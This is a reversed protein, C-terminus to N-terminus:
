VLKTSLYGPIQALISCLYVLGIAINVRLPSAYVNAKMPFTVVILRFIGVLVVCWSSIQLWYFYPEIIPMYKM